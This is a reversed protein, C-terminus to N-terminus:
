DSGLVAVVATAPRDRAPAAGCGRGDDGGSGGASRTGRGRSGIGARWSPKKV